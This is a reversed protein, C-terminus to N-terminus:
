AVGTMRESIEWLRRQVDRDYSIKSSRIERTDDDFYKGSIGEVEPSEALYLSTRAGKEPTWLLPAVLKAGFSFIGPQNKGFGSAIVGPHLCNASLQTGELRRALEYTFLVNCLKSQAYAKFGRYAKKGELDDLEIGGRTHARSAVNVIRAPASEKLRGLLLHTLLFPALHNVAFTTELGDRTTTRTMNIAGANNVLVDLRPLRSLLEKAVRRVDDLSAFDAVALEARGGKATIGRVVGEGKDRSRAVLVVTAGDAALRSATVEGIGSTAGTIVCVKGVM